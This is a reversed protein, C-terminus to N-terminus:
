PEICGVCAPKSTPLRVGGGRVMDESWECPLGGVFLKHPSNEVVTRCIELQPHSLLAAPRLVATVLTKVDPCAGRLQPGQRRQGYQVVRM